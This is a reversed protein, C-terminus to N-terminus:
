NASPKEKRGGHEDLSPVRLGKQGNEADARGEGGTVALKNKTTLLRQQPPQKSTEKEKNMQKSRLNRM